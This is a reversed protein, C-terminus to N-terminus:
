VPYLDCCNLLTWYVAMGLPRFTSSLPNLLYGLVQTGSTQQMWYLNNFDDTWFSAFAYLELGFALLAAISLAIWIRFLLTSRSPMPSTVERLRPASRGRVESRVEM